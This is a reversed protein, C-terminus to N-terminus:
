RNRIITLFGKITRAPSTSQENEFILIEYYYTGDPVPNDKFTGGWDNTYNVKSYILKGGQAFIKVQNFPNDLLDEIVWTENIGDGNPSFVNKVDAGPQNQTYERVPEAVVDEITISFTQEFTLGGADAVQVRISRSAGDEFDIAGATSLTNGSIAFQANDADGDGAVLSYTFSDGNDPDLSMLQGVEQAEDAEEITANTLSLTFPAENVNTVTIEFAKAFTGGEGDNTEIRVSYSAKDEFNFSINNTKLTSGDVTFSANDTDGAGSVLAYTHTNGADADATTLTGIAADLANNEAISTASITIDTPFNNFDDNVITVTAGDTIDVGLATSLKSMSVTLTENAEIVLDNTPTVTFTQTEGATGAFTLVQGAVATYDSDTLTATGDATNVEVTFGGQVANDITATVTIAGDGENGSADALTVAAVDDNKITLVAQDTIVVNATTGALNSLSVTFTEDAELKSDVGPAIDLQQTEGDTGSFTLTAGSVATYDGDAVTATGDATSLDVTFGGEITGELTATILFSEGDEFQSVDEITVQADNNVITYTFVTNTGLSAGSANSLTIVVTENEEILADDVITLDITKSLEGAAFSLSGNALTYDVGGGTATGTITYDVTAASLGAQDLNVVISSSTVSEASSEATTNFSVVPVDDNLITIIAEDTITVTNAADTVLNSMSVMLTEDSEVSSDATPTITFSQTEGVTGAFTITEATVATYDTGAEATGNSTSVDVTFGDVVFADSTLTVTIAGDDENASVDAITVTASCAQSDNEITWNFNDILSQRAAAGACYQLGEVGFNVDSQLQQAAWGILTADYNAVSMGSHSFISNLSRVGSIDWASLDQDFATANEFLNNMSTIGNDGTTLNWGSINQNFASANKFMSNMSTAASMDWESIDQNFVSAGRFMSGFNTVSSVDWNGINQNFSEANEFMSSMDVINGTEWSSIDQNFAAAEYFMQNLRDANPFRWSSINQNFSRADRFMATLNEANTPQWNGIDQNFAHADEFMRELKTANSIDWNSIDGNFADNNQFMAQFTEVKSVDWSNLDQNFADADNFMANMRTVNSVNWGDIDQNFAKADDFMNSIDTVSSVNWGTIDGNFLLANDFMKDMKTVSSVDWSNLDQNFVAADAFMSSMSTVSSVDWADVPQDFSQAYSFMYSMDQVASTNWNSISSNFNEAQAFMYSMDTVASVNWGSIDGNFDSEKFMESMDTINSVDWSTLDPNGIFTREFMRKMSTVQTLNPADTANIDFDAAIFAGEMSKWEIDGWQEVSRLRSFSLEFQPFQGSVKVTYTGEAVYTHSAAGTQNTEVTGDGWDIDYLYTHSGLTNFFTRSRNVDRSTIEWTTIFPRQEVTLQGNVLNLNYNTAAGGTLTIDYTGVPSSETATTAITPETINAKSDGNVFGSYSITLEPNAEGLYKTQDDAAATLDAKEITLDASVFSIDYNPNFLSSQLAYTGVDEGAVRTIAGSLEDGTNLSGSTISYAFDPDNDGYTKTAAQATITLSRQSITFVGPVATIEYNAADTGDTLNIAYTGPAEGADRSVTVVEDDGVISGSTVTFELTPDTDDVVKGADTAKLAIAKKAVTITGQVQRATYEADEALSVNVTIEGANGLTVTSGNIAAGTQDNDFTYTIAGSSNTSASLDFDADGYTKAIDSLSLSPTKKAIPGVALSEVDTGSVKGDNPTVEFSIYKGADAATLVYTTTTAGAIETKGTGSNDDSRYWKFTSNDADLEADIFNYVGRLPADVQLSFVVDTSVANVSPATNSAEVTITFQQYAKDDFQDALELQVLHEGVDSSSPNGSLVFGNVSLWTPGVLKVLTPVDNNLDEYTVTYTYTENDMVTTVADSTFAPAINTFGDNIVIPGFFTSEEATGTLVGDGPTVEFSLYKGNDDNVVTYSKTTAGAIAVRNAGASNDARYWQFTTGSEPDDNADSYAYSGELVGDVVLSKKIAVAQAVPAVNAEKVTFNWTTQSTLGASNNGDADVFASADFTVTYFQGELLDSDPNITVDAGSIAVENSTVDIVTATGTAPTLTINGTGKTVTESMTFSLNADKAVDVSGDAPITSIVTPVVAAVVPGTYTAFTQTGADTGDNPTVAFTIYKGVESSTLTYTGSTAGSIATRNAGSADDAVYWQLTSGSEADTDADSYNYSGTLQLNAELSGAISVSSAVPATNPQSATTFSIVTPDTIAATKVENNSIFAENEILLYYATNYALDSSPNITVKSGSYTLTNAPFTEVVNDNADYLVVNNATTGGEGYVYAQINESYTLTINASIAVDTADDAPSTATLMPTSPLALTTFRWVTPDSIGVHYRAEEYSVIFGDDILVYYETGPELEDDDFEFRIIPEDSGYSLDRSNEGDYAITKVLENTSAKYIKFAGLPDRELGVNQSTFLKFDDESDAEYSSSGTAPFFRTIIDEEFDETTFTFTTKDNVEALAKTGDLNLIFGQDYQVYYSVGREWTQSFRITAYARSFQPQNTITVASADITELVSDDSTRYVTLTGSGKQISEGFTFSLKDSDMLANKTASPNTSTIPLAEVAEETTFSWSAKNVIGSFFVETNAVSFATEPILIYYETGNDLTVDGLSLQVTTGNVTVQDSNVAITAVTADDLTRKILIDGSRAAVAQDFVFEFDTNTAVDVADDAPTLDNLVPSDVSASVTLVATNSVEECNAKTVVVFYQSQDLDETLNNITLTATTAGQIQNDASSDPNNELSKDSNLQLVKKTDDNVIFVVNNSLDVRNIKNTASILSNSISTWSQGLDDSEFLGVGNPSVYLKTGDYVAPSVSSSFESIGQENSSISTWTDGRDTSILLGENTSVFVNSGRSTIHRVINNISFGNDSTLVLNWSEGGDKSISIENGTGAYITEGSKSVTVVAEQSLFGTEQTSVFTWSEGGDKSIGVGRNTGVVLASADVALSAVYPVDPFGRENASITTWTEGNDESISIGSDSGVYVNDGSTRVQTILSANPFGNQGLPVTTWNQGMDTTYVFVSVGPVIARNIAFFKTSTAAVSSIYNGAFASQHVPINTIETAEEFTGGGISKEFWQYSAGSVEPVSFTASGVVYGVTNTPQTLILPECATHFTWTDKNTIALNGVDSEDKVLNASLTVYYQTAYDLSVGSTISVTTGDITLDDATLTQVLADTAYDYIKLEGTGKSVPRSFEISLETDIAIDTSAKSPTYSLAVPVDLVTLSANDSTQTCGDKTVVVSYKFGSVDLSLNSVTLQHSTAGQIQNTGTNTNSLRVKDSYIVVNNRHAPVVYIDDNVFEFGGFSYDGAEMDFVLEWNDGYDSSKYLATLHSIYLEGDILKINEIYDAGSENNSREFVIEWTAGGDSSRALDQASNFSYFIYNDDAAITHRLYSDSSNLSIDAWTSGGNESKFLGGSNSVYITNGHFFINSILRTNHGYTMNSLFTSWSDGGDESKYVKGAVVYLDGEYEFVNYVRENAFVTSWTEGMDDSISLGELTGAFLKEDTAFVKTVYDSTSFGNTLANYYSWTQGLNKSLYLGRGTAVLLNNEHIFIDQGRGNIGTGFANIENLNTYEKQDKKEYWQYTAGAIEEVEFTVSGLVGATKSVPQTPILNTYSLSFDDSKQFLPTGYTVSYQSTGEEVTINGTADTDFEAGDKKWSFSYNASADYNTIEAEQNTVFITSHSALGNNGNDTLDRMQNDAINKHTGYAAVLNTADHAPAATMIASVEENSLVKDWITIEALKGDLFGEPKNDNHRAGLLALWGDSVPMNLTGSDEETGNVYIKTEGTSHDYTYGVHYWTGNSLATSSNIRSSGDFVALKETERLYFRSEQDIDTNQLVFVNNFDGSGINSEKNIWMFVSRNKGVLANAVTNVEIYNSETEEFDLYNVQSTTVTRTVPDNSCLTEDTIQDVTTTNDNVTMSWTDTSQIFSRAATFTYNGAEVNTTFTNATSVETGDKKWSINEYWDVANFGAVSQVNRFDIVFNNKMVGDNGKGSHDKLVATDDNCDGFVSYYGVLNAYKPHGNNIKAKMAERIDAGTLVEDWVSIEAMDGNYFDSTSGGDFEQGLSYQASANPVSTGTTFRDNEIGDVYTVTEGTTHDYTWGVYHWINGGMNYSSSENTTGGRNVELNNGDDDVWLFSLNDGNAANVAFLVQNSSVSNETKVWMFVSRSKGDLDDQLANLDVWFQQSKDFSLVGTANTNAQYTVNGSEAITADVFVDLDVEARDFTVNYVTRTQANTDEDLVSGTETIVNGLPTTYSLNACETVNVENCTFGDPCCTISEDVTINYTTITTGITEKVSTTETIVQGGTTTFSESSCITESVNNCTFGDPCLEVFDIVLRSPEGQLNAQQNTNFAYIWYTGSEIYHENVLLTRDTRWGNSPYSSLDVPFEIADARLYYSEWDEDYDDSNKAEESFYKESWKYGTDSGMTSKFGCFNMPSSVYTLESTETINESDAKYLKLGTGLPNMRDFAAFLSGNSPVTVKYWVGSCCPVDSCQGMMGIPTGNATADSDFGEELYPFSTVEIPTPLTTYPDRSAQGLLSNSGFCLLGVFVVLRIFPNFNMFNINRYEITLLSYVLPKYLM